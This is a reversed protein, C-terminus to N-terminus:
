SCATPSLKKVNHNDRLHQIQYQVEQLQRQVRATANVYLSDTFHQAGKGGNTDPDVADTWIADVPNIGVWMIYLVEKTGHNVKSAELDSLYTQIQARTDPVTVAFKTLNQNAHANNSILGLVMDAYM